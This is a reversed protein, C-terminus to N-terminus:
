QGDRGLILDAAKEAVMVVSAHTNAGTLEGQAGARYIRRAERIGRRLTAFDRADVRPASIPSVHMPGSDGPPAVVM